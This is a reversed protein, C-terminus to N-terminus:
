YPSEFLSRALPVLSVLRLYSYQNRCWRFILRRLTELAASLTSRCSFIACISRTAALARDACTPRVHIRVARFIECVGIAVSM